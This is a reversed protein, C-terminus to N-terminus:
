QMHRWECDGSKAYDCFRCNNRSPKPPFKTATTLAVARTTWRNRFKLAETRTYEHTLPPENKDLYWCQAKIYELFPNRIFTAISYLQLQQGHSMENGFKQGTKYDIIKAVTQTLLQMADLKMRLWINPHQWSVPEYSATFGWEDETYVNGEAYGDRLEILEPKYRNYSEPFEALEGQVFKEGELHIAEGRKAAEGQEGPIKKVKGLYVAYPCAEFKKLTSYSWAKVLGSQPEDDIATALKENDIPAGAVFLPGPPIYTM